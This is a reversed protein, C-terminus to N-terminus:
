KPNRIKNFMEECCKEHFFANIRNPSIYFGRVAVVENGKPIKMGCWKCVCIRNLIEFKITADKKNLM